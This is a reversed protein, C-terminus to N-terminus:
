AYEANELQFYYEYIRVYAAALPDMDLANAWVCEWLREDYDEFEQVGGEPIEDGGAIDDSEIDVPFSSDLSYVCIMADSRFSQNNSMWHYSITGDELDLYCSATYGSARYNCIDFTKRVM